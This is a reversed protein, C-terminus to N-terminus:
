GMCLFPWVNMYVYVWVDIYKYMCIYICHLRDITYGCICLAHIKYAGLRSEFSATVEVIQAIRIQEIIVRVQHKLSNIELHTM